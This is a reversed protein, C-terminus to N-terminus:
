SRGRRWRIFLGTLAWLLPLALLHTLAIRTGTEPSWDIAIDHAATGTSLRNGTLWNVLGLLVARNGAQGFLANRACDSDGLILVQAKDKRLALGVLHRAKREGQLPDHHATGPKTENWTAVPTELRAVTEWGNEAPDLLAHAGDLLLPASPPSGLLPALGARIGLRAPGLGTQPTDSVLTGPLTELGLLAQLNDSPDDEHLWFLHGGRALYRRLAERTPAPLARRPAAVVVLAANDPITANGALGLVRYGLEDLADAWAGIGQPNEHDLAAEGHGQLVVIWPDGTRAIRTFARLLAAPTPRLVRQSRGMGEIHLEGERTVGAERALQPERRPDIWRLRLQPYRAQLPAILKEIHARLVPHDPAWATVVVPGHLADLAQLLAKPLPHVRYLTLNHRQSLDAALGLATLLLSLAFAERLPQWRARERERLLVLGSAALTALTLLVFYAIDDLRLTGRLGPDLHPALALWRWAAERPAFSDLLWLFGGVLLALAMASAPRRALASCLLSIGALLAALLALTAWAVALRDWEVQMGLALSAPLAMLASILALIPLLIGLWKALVLAPLSLPTALLYPLRDQQRESAIASMGGLPVMPLLLLALTGLTPTILLDNIGLPLQHALLDPQIQQYVQLQAFLMWALILWTGAALLWFTSGTFRARLERALLHQIM